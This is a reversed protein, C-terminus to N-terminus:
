LVSFIATRSIWYNQGARETSPFGAFDGTSQECRQDRWSGPKLPDIDLAAVNPGQGKQGVELWIKITGSGQEVIFKEISPCLDLFRRHDGPTCFGM